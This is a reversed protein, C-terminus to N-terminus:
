KELEFLFDSGAENQKFPALRPYPPINQVANQIDSLRLTKTTKRLVELLGEAFPSHQYGDSVENKGSSTLVYRTKYKALEARLLETNKSSSNAIVQPGRAQAISEFFTGSYCVDIVAFVHRCPHKSLLDELAAYSYYHRMNQGKSDKAVLGGQKTSEDFYGHGAFFVFLQDDPHYKKQATEALKEYLEDLTPNLIRITDFDFRTALENAIAGADRTPNNLNKWQLSNEYNDTAFFYAYHQPKEKYNVREITYNQTAKNDYIDTAV